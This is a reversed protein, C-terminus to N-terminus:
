SIAEGAWARMDDVIAAAEDVAAAGRPQEDYRGAVAYPNLRRLEDVSRPASFGHTQLLSALRALDHTPPFEIRNEFLVAKLCKEVAQQAHFCAVVDDAEPADKLVRFAVM